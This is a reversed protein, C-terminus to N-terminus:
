NRKTSSVASDTREIKIQKSTFSRKHREQLKEFKQTMTDSIKLVPTSCYLITPLVHAIYVSKAALMSMSKRMRALLKIRATAKKLVKELHDSMSLSPDLHMGLYKYKSTFNILHGQLSVKLDSHSCLRKATGFLMSETKGKKLNIILRNKDLWNRIVTMNTSLTNEIVKSDRHSTYIVTDDAYMQIRCGNVVM